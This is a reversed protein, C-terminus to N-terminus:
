KNERGSPEAEQRTESVDSLVKFSSVMKLVDPLIEKEHESKIASVIAFASGSDVIVWQRWVIGTPGAGQFHLARLKGVSVDTMDKPSVDKQFPKAFQVALAEKVRGFLAAEEEKNTSSYHGLMYVDMGVPAISPQYGIYPGEDHVKWGPALTLEFPMPRPPPAFVWFDRAPDYKWSSKTQRAITDFLEEWTPKYFDPFSSNLTTMNISEDGTYIAVDNLAYLLSSYSDFSGIIAGSTRRSLFSKQEASTLSKRKM